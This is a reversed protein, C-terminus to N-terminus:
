FPPPADFTCIEGTKPHRFTLSAAHLQLRPAAALALDTAYLPDGLIPHGLSVMHVRLQHTRGTLPMLHMRTANDERAMVRWRTQAPRGNIPDVRHRPKRDPDIALPLDILGEEEAVVGYVRAIYSKETTRNEFQIAIAAHATKNLGMVVVGSTDRDLRHIVSATPYLLRMRADLCDSLRPDRGPVHLLGSPKNLVIFEDDRYLVPIDGMPPTYNLIEQSADNM